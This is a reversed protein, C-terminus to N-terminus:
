RTPPPLHEGVIPVRQADTLDTWFAGRARLYRNKPYGRRRQFIAGVADM